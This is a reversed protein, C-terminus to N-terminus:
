QSAFARLEFPSSTALTQGKEDHIVLRFRGPDFLAHALRLAYAACDNGCHKELLRIGIPGYPQGWQTREQKQVMVSQDQVAKLCVASGAVTFRADAPAVSENPVLGYSRREMEIRCQALAGYQWVFLAVIVIPLIHKQRRM